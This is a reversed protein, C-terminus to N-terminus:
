PQVLQTTHGHGRWQFDAPAITVPTFRSHLQLLLAGNAAKCPRSCFFHEVQGPVVNRPDCAVTDALMLVINSDPIGLRCCRSCLLRPLFPSSNCAQDPLPQLACRRCRGARGRRKIAQYVGLANTVHRYNLWYRSSSVIIAHQDPAGSGSPAAASAWAPCDLLLLLVLVQLHPSTHSRGAARRAAPTSCCRTCLRGVEM